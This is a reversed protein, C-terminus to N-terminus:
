IAQFIRIISGHQVRASYSRTPIYGKGVSDGLGYAAKWTPRHATTM